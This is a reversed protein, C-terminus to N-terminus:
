PKETYPTRIDGIYGRTPRVRGVSRTREAAPEAGKRLIAPGNRRRRIEHCSATRRLTIPSGKGHAALFDADKTRGLGHPAAPATPHPTRRDALAIPAPGLPPVAGSASVVTRASQLSKASATPSILGILRHRCDKPGIAVHRMGELPADPAELRVPGFRTRARQSNRQRSSRSTEAGDEDREL